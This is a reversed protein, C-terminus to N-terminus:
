RCLRAMLWSATRQGLFVSSSTFHSHSPVNPSRVSCMLSFCGGGNGGVGMVSQKCEKKEWGLGVCM